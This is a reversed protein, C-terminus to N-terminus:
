AAKKRRSVVGAAFLGLGFIALTSPVPVAQVSDLTLDVSTTGGLPDIIFQLAGLNGWDVTQNGGVGGCTISNVGAPLFGMPLGCLAPNDFGALPIFSTTPVAVGSASFSISTWNDADTYAEIVFEFGLDSFITAIEFNTSGSLDVGGLGVENLASSGDIGDWQVTSTATAQSGVSFSLQGAAVQITAPFALNSPNSLLEVFLDREGGLIDSGMTTVSSSMGGDGTTADLLATQDTDFLDIPISVAQANAGALSLAAVGFTMSLLKKM